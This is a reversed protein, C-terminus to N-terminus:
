MSENVIKRLYAIPMAYTDKNLQCTHVSPRTGRTILAQYGFNLTLWPATCPAQHTNNGGLNKIILFNASLPGFPLRIDVVCLTCDPLVAIKKVFFLQKKFQVVMTKVTNVELYHLFM